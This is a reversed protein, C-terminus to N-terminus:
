YESPTPCKIGAIGGCMTGVEASALGFQLGFALYCGLIVIIRKSM